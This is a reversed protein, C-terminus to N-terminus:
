HTKVLALPYGQLALSLQLLFCTREDSLDVGMIEELRRVRYYVSNKHSSLSEAAASVSRGSFLYTHLYHTHDTGNIADFKELELLKPHVLKDSPYNVSAIEALHVCWVDDYGTIATQGDTRGLRLAADAQVYALGVDALHSFPRSLGISLGEVYIGQELKSLISGADISGDFVLIIRRERVIAMGSPFTRLLQLRLYDPSILVEPKVLDVVMVRKKPPLSLGLRALRRESEDDGIGGAILDEILTGYSVKGIASDHTGRLEFAIVQCILPLLEVDEDTFAKYQEIVVVHGLVDGGDRVRAALYRHPSAANSSISAQDTAYTKAFDGSKASARIVAVHDAPDDSWAPDDVSASDSKAVVNVGMDCAFLPNGIIDAAVNLIGQLGTRSLLADFLLLRKNEIDM